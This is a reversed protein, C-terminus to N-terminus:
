RGITGELSRAPSYLGVPTRTWWDGTQSRQELTTLHYDWLQARVYKPPAGPFPNTELLDLVDKSGQLLRVEFASFWPNNRASGLAAFWMQWDIRPQHPAVFDPRRDLAGPKHKFAYARWEIGDNSGEVIIENRVTTMVAFLGYSNVSRLPSALSLLKEGGSSVEDGGIVTREMIVGNLLVIVLLPVFRLAGVRGFAPEPPSAIAIRERLGRPVVRSLIRDDLLLICLALALLNFFCYNGTLAILVQLSVLLAFAILRFPRPMFVFFPVVIQIIFMIVVSMKQFGLPMQHAYYGIWTPLPQTEYHYTLATLKHWTPDGSAWKAIGSSFMLKFLLFRCLAIGSHRPPREMVRILWAPSARTSALFMAYITAELLLTDWQYSLFTRGAVSLSLYLLWLMGLSILEAVGAFLAMGFFVGAACAAHLSANSSGLWFVTPLEFYVDDGLKSRAMSLFPTLPLIGDRGILGDIQSWLSGFAFLHILGMARLFFWRALRVSSKEDL